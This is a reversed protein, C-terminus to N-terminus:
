VGAELGEGGSQRHEKMKIITDIRLIAEAIEGAAKLAHIKVLAPDLVGAEYMDAIEGTDCDVALSNKNQEAQAALVDGIKELPNFGANAVIQAMPRRLTEAVCGVGYAAMGRISERVKEVERSVALELAGGGPVVGGKVAAQVSSAADRAIREREGVVEQTAAGVLVTAMPKGRGNLVWVQELKEDELVQGAQGLFKELEAPEKKLGTRKIMRAGTHEAARRLEKNLVRQVVMVGADTLMDEATDDVGRDVLVLGVGLDIIKQVNNKFETQLELYRAFGAETGLAEDEIEEPELADDLVLVKVESLRRPMQKNMTEKNIIVGMFVQNAAGEKATVTDALKFNVDLLKERGILRAAEVVLDAIDRHERGAVLAVQQLWPHQLDELPVAQEKMVELARRVGARIGEIVRAVPVGKVVQEVGAGVLAGAMVTATTTGDGIEEQQAKAINIVLRAAPHNAEMMTLITVGDNTIVVEGFKDVLMTDLGKPGLTGEVASAIARVANSNTMLAALKENVEAGQSAQQKLSM